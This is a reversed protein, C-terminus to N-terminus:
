SSVDQINATCYSPSFSAAIRELVGDDVIESVDLLRDRLYRQQSGPIGSVTTAITLPWCLLSATTGRVSTKLSAPTKISLAMENEGSQQSEFLELMYPVSACFDNALQEIKLETAVLQSATNFEPFGVLSSLAKLIIDNVILRLARYRNWMGAHGVNPYIHVTSNFIKSDKESIGSEQLTHTTYLSEIPLERAWVMLCNDLAQSEALLSQIKALEYPSGPALPSVPKGFLSAAQHRIKAVIITCRDLKLAIDTEGYQSGDRLWLPVPLNRLILSRILQRRVLKDLEMSSETRDKLQRRMKLMAMAGDHHAFSRSATAQIDQSFFQSTNDMVTNEYFSLLMAALFVEDSTAESTHTLATNTKVLAKSYQSAAAALAVSNKQARGFTAYSVAFIALSLISKPHTHCIDARSYKMHSAIIEPLGRPVDVYYHSYYALALDNLLPALVQPLSINPRNTPLVLSAQPIDRTGASRNVNPGRPRKRRGGVYENENLFIFDCAEEVANCTINAM